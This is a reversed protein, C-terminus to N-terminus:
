DADSFRYGNLKEIQVRLNAELDKELHFGKYEYGLDRLSNIFEKELDGESQYERSKPSKKLEDKNALVTSFEGRSVVNFTGM